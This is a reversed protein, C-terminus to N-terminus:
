ATVFPFASGLVPRLFYRELRTRGSKGAEPHKLLYRSSSKNGTCQPRGSVCLFAEWWGNPSTHDSALFISKLWILPFYLIAFLLEQHRPLFGLVTGSVRGCVNSCGWM